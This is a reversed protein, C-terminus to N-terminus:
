RRAALVIAASIDDLEHVTRGVAASLEARNHTGAAASIAPFAVAAYGNRGYFLLDLRRVIAIARNGDAGTRDANSARYQFRGIAASVPTLDRADIPLTGLAARMHPAYSTLQYAATGNALRMALLAVMQASTRHNVFGPDAQTTAYRLDDFASHYVGFTGEFGIEMVPIGADYLFPEFDSGGGPGRVNAGGAQSQWRSYLTRREERPDRIAQAAPAIVNELAAAAMAGFTQGTANEDENIYALCGTRLASEHMRLYANSGAEGIEEGDFGVVVISYKPRWGSKALYGLARAAELLTAVGAGNDTVGYVWADRHAGLVISHTPDDGQLIGVSNWLTQRKVIEDVQLRIPSATIGNHMATLIRAAVAASVPLAPITLAPTGLSGRQVAGLPRYPGDPYAPGRLSGDRDAPDSFFIVGAAGRDRARRALLGRFQKGYRVLVIRTRVDLGRSALSRYDDDLGHGADIAPALVTGSGSWANFPIGSGKRSGDPDSAIPTEALDFDIQPKALLSLKAGGLYPVDSTFPEISAQFGSGELQDRMWQAIHADGPTGAYHSEANLRAADELAGSTSPVDLLYQEFSREGGRAAAASVLLVVCLLAAIGRM